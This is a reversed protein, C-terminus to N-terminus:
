AAFIADAKAQMDDHPVVRGHNVIQTLRDLRERLLRTADACVQAVGPDAKMDDRRVFRVGPDDSVASRLRARGRMELYTRVVEVVPSM